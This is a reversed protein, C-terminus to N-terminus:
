GGRRRSLFINKNRTHRAMQSEHMEKQFSSSVTDFISTKINTFIFSKRRQPNYGMQIQGYATDLSFLRDSGNFGQATRNEHFGKIRKHESFHNKVIHQSATLRTYTEKTRKKKEQSINKHRM